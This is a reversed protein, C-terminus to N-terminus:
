HPQVLRRLEIKLAERFAPVPISEKGDSNEIGLFELTEPSLPRAEHCAVSVARSLAASVVGGGFLDRVSTMLQQTEDDFIAM